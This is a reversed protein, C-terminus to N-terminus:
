KAKEGTRAQAQTPSDLIAVARRVVVRLDACRPDQSADILDVIAARMERQRTALQNLSEVAMRAIAREAAVDGQLRAVEPDPLISSSAVRGTTADGLAAATPPLNSRREQDGASHYEKATQLLERYLLAKLRYADGVSLPRDQHCSVVQGWLAEFKSQTM